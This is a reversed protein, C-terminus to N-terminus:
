MIDFVSTLFLGRVLFNCWINIEIKRDSEMCSVCSQTRKLWNPSLPTVFSINWFKSLHFLSNSKINYFMCITPLAFFNIATQYCYIVKFSNQLVKSFPTMFPMQKMGKKFNSYILVLVRSKYWNEKHFNQFNQAQKKLFTVKKSLFTGKRTLISCQGLNRSYVREKNYEHYM